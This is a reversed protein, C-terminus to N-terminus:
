STMLGNLLDIVHLQATYMGTEFPLFIWWSLRSNYDLIVHGRKEQYPTSLSRITLAFFIFQQRLIESLFLMNVLRVIEAVHSASNSVSPLALFV